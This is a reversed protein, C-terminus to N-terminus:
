FIGGERRLEGSACDIERVIPAVERGEATVCRNELLSREVDDRTCRWRLYREMVAERNRELTTIWGVHIENMLRVDRETGSVTERASLSCEHMRVASFMRWSFREDYRDQGFYYFLPVISSLVIALLAGIAIWRRTKADEPPKEIPELDKEYQAADVVSGWIGAICLGVAGAILPLWERGRQEHTFVDYGLLLLGLTFLGLSGFGLTRRAERLKDKQPPM